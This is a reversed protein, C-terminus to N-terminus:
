MPAVSSTDLISSRQVMILDIWGIYWVTLARRWAKRGSIACALSAIAARTAAPCPADHNRVIRVSIYKVRCAVNAEYLVCVHADIRAQLLFALLLPFLRGHYLRPSSRLHPRSARRALLICPDHLHYTGDNDGVSRHVLRTVFSQYM